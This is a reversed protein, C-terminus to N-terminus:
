NNLSSIRLDRASGRRAREHRCLCRQQSIPERCSATDRTLREAGAVERRACMVCTIRMVYIVSVCAHSVVRGGGGGRVEGFLTAFWSHAYLAAPIGHHQRLMAM